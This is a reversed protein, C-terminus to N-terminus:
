IRNKIFARIAYHIFYYCSSLLPLHEVNRYINWQWPLVKIKNSSISNDTVRYAATISQTNQAIFGKKLIALWLAYDEHHIDIFNIKGVKKRDYIGTLNGICNSALLSKYTAFAPAKIIRNARKGNRDMKEYDSYVIAVKPNKFLLLQQELKDSYWVDDSDLFAIYRGTAVSMGVNRPTSPLGTHRDNTLLIIRKDKKGYETVIRRSEDTSSDDVVLLEWTTYTQAIVSNIAECIFEAANHMPMIISVLRDDKIM